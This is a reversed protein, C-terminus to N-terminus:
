VGWRDVRRSRESKNLRYAKVKSHDLTLSCTMVIHSKSFKQV